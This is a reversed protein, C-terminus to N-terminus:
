QAIEGDVPELDGIQAQLPDHDDIAKAVRQQEAVLSTRKIEALTDVTYSPGDRDVEVRSVEFAPENDVAAQIM